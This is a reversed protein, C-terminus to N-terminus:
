AHDDRVFRFAAVWVQGTGAVPMVLLRDEGYTTKADLVIVAMRMSGPSVNITGRQGVMRGLENATM